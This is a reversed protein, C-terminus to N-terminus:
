LDCPAFRLFPAYFRLRTGIACRTWSNVEELVLVIRTPLSNSLETRLKDAFKDFDLALQPPYALAMMGKWSIDFANGMSGFTCDDEGAQPGALSDIIAICLM